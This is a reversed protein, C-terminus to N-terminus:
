ELLLLDNFFYFPWMKVCVLILAGESDRVCNGNNDLQDTNCIEPIIM